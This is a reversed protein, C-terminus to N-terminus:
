RDKRHGWKNPAIKGLNPRHHPLPIDNGTIHFTTLRALQGSPLVTLLTKASHIVIVKVYAGRVLRTFSSATLM